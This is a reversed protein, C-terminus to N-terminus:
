PNLIDSDIFHPEIEKNGFIAKALNDFPQKPNISFGHVYCDYTEGDRGLPHIYVTLPNTNSVVLRFEVGDKANDRIFKELTKIM